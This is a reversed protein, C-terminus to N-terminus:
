LSFTMVHSPPTTGAYNAGEAVPWGQNVYPGGITTGGAWGSTGQVAGGSVQIPRLWKVHGDAALYNAGDSHRPLTGTGWFSTNTAGAAMDTPGTAPTSNLAPKSNGGLVLSNAEGPATVDASAAVIEGLLM